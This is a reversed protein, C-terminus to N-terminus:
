RESDNASFVDRPDSREGSSMYSTESREVEGLWPGSKFRLSFHESAGSAARKECPEVGAVSM